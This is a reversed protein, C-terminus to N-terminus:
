SKRMVTNKVVACVEYAESECPTKYIKELISVSYNSARSIESYKRQTNM